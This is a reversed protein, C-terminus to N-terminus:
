FCSFCVSPLPKAALLKPLHCPTMHLHPQITSSTFLYYECLLVNKKRHFLSRSNCFKYGLHATLPVVCSPHISPPAPPPLRSSSLAPDSFSLLIRWICCNQKQQRNNATQLIIGGANSELASTKNLSPPLLIDIKQPFTFLLSIPLPGDTEPMYGFVSLYQQAKQGM